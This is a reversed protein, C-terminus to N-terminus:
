ERTAWEIGSFPDGKGAEWQVCGEEEWAVNGRWGGVVLCWGWAGGEDLWWGWAVGEDEVM